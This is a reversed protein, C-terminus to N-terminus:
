KAELTKHIEWLRFSFHSGDALLSPGAQRTDQRGKMGINRCFNAEGM